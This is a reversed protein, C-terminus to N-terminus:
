VRVTRVSTTWILDNVRDPAASTAAKAKTEAAEAHSVGVSTVIGSPLADLIFLKGINPYGLEIIATGIQPLGQYILYIQILLPTGRILSVYLGSVGQAISNSSLRWAIRRAPSSM